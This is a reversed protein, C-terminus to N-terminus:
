KMLRSIKMGDRNINRNKEKEKKKKDFPRSFTNVEGRKIVVVLLSASIFDRM